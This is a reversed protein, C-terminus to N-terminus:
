IDELEDRSERGGKQPTFTIRRKIKIMRHFHPVKSGLQNKSNSNPASIVDGKM